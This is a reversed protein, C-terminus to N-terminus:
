KSYAPIYYRNTKKGCNEEEKKKWKAIVIPNIKNDLIDQPDYVNNNNDIYYIIGNIDQAWVTVKKEIPTIQEDDMKGHPIGKIHTGCFISENKRRRTCQESNARKACCRSQLPVINKVRKRRQLDEKTISLGPYQYIYEMFKSTALPSIDDGITTLLEQKIDEKFKCFFTKFRTNLKKEM